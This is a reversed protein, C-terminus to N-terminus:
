KKLYDVSHDDFNRSGIRSFGNKAHFNLSIENKPFTNVECCLPIGEKKAFMSLHNYLKTGAGERGKFVRNDSLDAWKSCKIFCFVVM